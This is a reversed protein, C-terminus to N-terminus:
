LNRISSIIALHMSNSPYESDNWGEPKPGILSVLSSLAERLPELHGQQHKSYLLIRKNLIQRKKKKKTNELRIM